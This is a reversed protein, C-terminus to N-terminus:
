KARSSSQMLLMNIVSQGAKEARAKQAFGEKSATHYMGEVADRQEKLVDREATLAEIHDILVRMDISQINLIKQTPDSKLIWDWRAILVYAM